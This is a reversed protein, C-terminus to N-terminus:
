GAERERDPEPLRGARDEAAAREIDRLDAILSDATDRYGTYFDREGQTATEPNYEAQAAEHVQEIHDASQGAEAQAMIIQYATMAGKERDGAERQRLETETDATMNQEKRPPMDPVTGTGAAPHWGESPQYGRSDIDEDDLGMATCWDGKRAAALARAASIKDAKTDLRPTKDWWAEFLRAIDDRLVTSVTKAEGRVVDAITHREAGTAQAIRGTGHGMAHLARLRLMSGNADARAAPIDEPELALLARGSAPTFPRQGTMGAHVTMVGLGAAAAIAEWSGGTGRLKMVHARVADPEPQQATM